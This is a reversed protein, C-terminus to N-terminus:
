KNIKYEKIQLEAMRKAYGPYSDMQQSDIFYDSERFIDSPAYAGISSTYVVKEVDNIRCAELINTNMQLLSVFFSAPKTKTVETNGKIGAVHFVYNIDKTIEKCLNFDTLDGYIYEARYDNKINDLSVIKVNAGYNCLMDVIQSGILGSGGTVIIDSNIFSNIISEDKTM